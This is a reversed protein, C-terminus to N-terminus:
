AANSRRRRRRPRPPTEAEPEEEAEPLQVEPAEVDAADVGEDQALEAIAEAQRAKLEAPSLKNDGVPEDKLAVDLEDEFTQADEVLGLEIERERIKRERDELANIRAIEEEAKPDNAQKLMEQMASKAQEARGASSPNFFQSTMAAQDANEFYLPRTPPELTMEMEYPLKALLAKAEEDDLAVVEGPELPRCGKRMESGARLFVKTTVAHPTGDATQSPILKIRVNIM